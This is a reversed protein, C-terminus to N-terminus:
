LEYNATRLRPTAIGRSVGGLEQNGEREIQDLMLQFDNREKSAIDWRHVIAVRQETTLTQTHFESELFECVYRRVAIQAKLNEVRLRRIVPEM